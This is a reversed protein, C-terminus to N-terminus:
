RPVVGWGIHFLASGLPVEGGSDGLIQLHFRVQLFTSRRNSDLFFCLCIILDEQKSVNPPVCQQEDKEGYSGWTIQSASGLVGIKTNGVKM